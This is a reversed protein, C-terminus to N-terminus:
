RFKPRGSGRRRDRVPVGHETLISILRDEKEKTDIFWLRRDDGSPFHWKHHYKQFPARKRRADNPRVVEVTRFKSFPITVERKGVFEWRSFRLGTETAVIQECLSLGLVGFLVGAIFCLGAFFRLADRGAPSKFLCFLAVGIWVFAALFLFGPVAPNRFVALVEESEAGWCTETAALSAFLVFALMVSPITRQM